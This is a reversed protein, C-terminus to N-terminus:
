YKNKNMDTSKSQRAKAKDRERNEAWNRAWKRAAARWDRITRGHNDQWDTALLNDLFQAACLEANDLKMGLRALAPEMEAQVLPLSIPPHNTEINKNNDHITKNNNNNNNNNNTYANADRPEMSKNQLQMANADADTSPATETNEGGNCRKQWREKAAEQRKQCVNRYHSATESNYINLVLDDGDWSWLQSNKPIKQVGIWRMWESKKWKRAGILRGSTSDERALYMCMMIAQGVELEGAQLFINQLEMGLIYHKM